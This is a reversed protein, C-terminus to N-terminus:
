LQVFCEDTEYLFPIRLTIILECQSLYMNKYRLDDFTDYIIIIILDLDGHTLPQALFVVSIVVM